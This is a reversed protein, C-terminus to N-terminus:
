YRAPALVKLSSANIKVEFHSLGPIYDGDLHVPFHDPVSISVEKCPIIEVYPSTNLKGSFAKSLIQPLMILPFPKILVLDFFGDGMSAFPAIYANNGYQSSNAVAVIFYKEDRFLNEGKIQLQAPKFNRFQTFMCKAYTFFGRVKEQEFVKSVQADFGTGAVNIFFQDALTCTDIQLEQAKNLSYVAKASNLPIGLHRALGNGSGRPIIGLASSSGVLSNAVENITGDGGVAVIIPTKKRVAEASLERAHDKRETFRLEYDFINHDLNKEIISELRSSTGFGSIPNAIFLIKEKTM